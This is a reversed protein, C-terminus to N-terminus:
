DEELFEDGEVAYLIARALDPVQDETVTRLDFLVHDDEVRCFAAPSGARMRAAFATPDPVTLRVGWSPIATGPMSGGGIVSECRHVHAHELDGGLSESLRQARKRVSGASERLMRHVPIEDDEGRAYMALVQELAAVQLKDVRVARAIPHKRLRAVLDARGFVLGAQPGGLLKDGSCMVLDAGDALAGVVDPEDTPMGHGPTLLGSGVDYLLSVEHRRALTALEKASTAATFGVVRYNSPHVKLVAGTRDTVAARYDGIRTRNTTGVEVLRAGSARMIDPIRFEGGIEILEGRSVLVQKGKALAALSLLLAAACNNVV